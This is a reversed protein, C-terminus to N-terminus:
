NRVVESVTVMGHLTVVNSHFFQMMRAGERLLRSKQEENAAQPKLTKIAVARKDDDCLKWIGKYVIGFHGSGIEDGFRHHRFLGDILPVYM